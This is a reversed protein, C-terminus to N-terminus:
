VWAATCAQQVNMDQHIRIQSQLATALTDRLVSVLLKVVEAIADVQAPAVHAMM